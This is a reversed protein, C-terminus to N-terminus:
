RGGSARPQRPQRAAPSSRPRAARRGATRGTRARWATLVRAAARRGWRSNLPSASQPARPPNVATPTIKATPKGPTFSAGARSSRRNGRTKEGVSKGGSGPAAARQRAPPIYHQEAQKRGQHSEQRVLPTQKSASTQSTASAHNQWVRSECSCQEGALSPQALM